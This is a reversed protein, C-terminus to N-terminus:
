SDTVNVSTLHLVLHQITLLGRSFSFYPLENSVPRPPLVQHVELPLMPFDLGLAFLFCSSPCMDQNPDTPLTSQPEQALALYTLEFWFLSSETLRIPTKASPHVLPLGQPPPSVTSRWPQSSDLAHVQM